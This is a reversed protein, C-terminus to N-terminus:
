SVGVAIKAFPSGVYDDSDFNNCPTLFGVPQTGSPATTPPKAAPAPQAAAPQTAAPTASPPKPLKDSSAQVTTVGHAGAWYLYDLVLDAQEDATQGYRGNFFEIEEKPRGAAESWTLGALKFMPLGTFFAPMSTGPQIVPPEQVWHRVWKRQLRAHLLSLNPAKPEKVAGPANPDGLYHCNLCQMQHMFEEGHKLREESVERQGSEVFPFPTAYLQTTFRAKYLAIRYRRGLEEANNKTPDLEIAAMNKTELAWDKLRAAALEFEPRRYWDDGPWAKDAPPLTAVKEREGDVYKIVLDFDKKLTNSEKNSVANFYAIIASWEDDTAPFSPMRIGHNMYILPRLDIVNKFFNFLWSYQVRNGEGRLPPPARTAIMEKEFYQQIQPQNNEIWHCSVCNFKHTLERGRAILKSQDSNSKALLRDSVLRDRNSIVFTVIQHVQEDTLYFTPMKLKDLPRGSRLLVDDSKPDPDLLSKGRDFVRTNKLKQTIWSPRTHELEPWAANVAKAIAGGFDGMPAWALKSAEESLGNVMMVPKTPPLGEVKHADLYEYALQSIAKEGWRSLNTGPATFTETGNIAHCSMCGYNAILKKGLFAMRKHDKDMAAVRQKAEDLALKDEAPTKTTRKVADVALDTLEKDDDARALATQASYKSRLFLATLEIQKASDIPALGAQWADTPSDNTRKQALLYEVLDMAQQDSLRLQPMITYPSYHRPEKLWDFLWQKADEPKRDALLKTGVGSLEPGIHVFVPKTSADSYSEFAHQGPEQEFNEKVYTQRENYTMGDYAKEADEKKMAHAKVLDNVIWKEGLTIPKNNRKDTQPDNLNAHCAQCGIANFVAKGAEASGQMQLALKHSPHWEESSMVLYETIARAEQRTRRLEEDSSNNELMFFHPMRTTPRFSKPSWIWTNIFAPSLKSTVHTLSPGVKVRGNSMALAPDMSKADKPMDEAPVSDMQHCNVCGLQAFLQRGHYLNPAEDKIDLISNHCRACNAELYQPPRMPWDWEHYVLEFDRPAEPEYTAKWYAMQAVAKSQKGTVPDTYAVPKSEEGHAHATKEGETQEPIEIHLNSVEKPIVAGHPAVAELMSAMKSRDDDHPLAEKPLLASPVPIGTRQDVFIERPSHAALVFDTEQGSGDHCSTCGVGIKNEGSELPHKSDTDVYMDLRPHALLVPSADLAKYGAKKRYVNVADTLAFRYRDDLLRNQEKDLATAIGKRLEEVYRMAVDRPADLAKAEGKIEVLIRGDASTSPGLKYLAQLLEALIANQTPGDISPATTPATTPAATAGILAPNFKFSALPQGDLTVVTTKGVTGVITNIRGANRKVVDPAAQIAWAQWFEPLAVPGPRTKTAAAATPRSPAVEPLKYGRANSSEEELFRVVNEASYEKRAVNVHCTTCRDITAIKMFAVDTLVDPLLVNVPKEAPNVFDLLPADRLKTSITGVLGSLGGQTQPDLSHLKKQLADRDSTLKRKQGELADVAATEKRFEQQLAERKMVIDNALAETRQEVDRRPEVIEKSIRDIRDKDNAAVADQLAGEMVGLVAKKNNLTFEATARDSDLEKIDVKLKELYERRAGLSKDAEAIKEDLAKIDANRQADSTDSELRERTLAADWVRGQQQPKRWAKEHDQFISWLTVGTLLVASFAFIWNLRKVNWFTDTPIPM